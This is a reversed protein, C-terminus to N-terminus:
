KNASKGINSIAEEFKRCVEEDIRSNSDKARILDAQYTELNNKIQPFCNRISEFKQSLLKGGECKFNTGANIASEEMNNFIDSLQDEYQGLEIILSNLMDENIGITDNM